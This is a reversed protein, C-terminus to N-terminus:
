SELRDEEEEVEGKKRWQRGRLYCKLGVMLGSKYSCFLRYVSLCVTKIGTRDTQVRYDDM